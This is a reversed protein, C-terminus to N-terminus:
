LLCPFYTPRTFRRSLPWRTLHSSPLRPAPLFFRPVVWVLAVPTQWRPVYWRGVGKSSRVFGQVGILKSLHMKGMWTEINAELQRPGHVVPM